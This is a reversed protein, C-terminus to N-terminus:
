VCMCIIVSGREREKDKDRETKRERELGKDRYTEKQKERM